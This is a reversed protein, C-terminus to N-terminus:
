SSQHQINLNCFTETANSGTARFSCCYTLSVTPGSTAPVATKTQEFGGHAAPDHVLARVESQQPRTTWGHSQASLLFRGPNSFVSFCSLSMESERGGDAYKRNDNLNEMEARPAVHSCKHYWGAERTVRSYINIRMIATIWGTGHSRLHNGGTSSWQSSHERSHANPLGGVSLGAEAWMSIIYLCCTLYCYTPTNSLGEVPVGTLDHGRSWEDCRSM